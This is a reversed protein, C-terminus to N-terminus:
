INLKAILEFNYYKEDYISFQHQEMLYNIKEDHQKVRPMEAEIETVKNQCFSTTIGNENNKM